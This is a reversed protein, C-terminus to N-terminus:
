SPKNHHDNQLIYLYQVMVKHQVGSVLTINYIIKILFFRFSKADLQSFFVSSNREKDGLSLTDMLSM